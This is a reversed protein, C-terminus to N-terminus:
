GHSMYLSLCSDESAGVPLNRHGILGSVGTNAHRQVTPTLTGVCGNLSGVPLGQGLVRVKKRYPSM